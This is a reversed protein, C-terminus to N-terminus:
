DKLDLVDVNSPRHGGPLVMGDLLSQVSTISDATASQMWVGISPSYALIRNGVAFFLINHTRKGHPLFPLPRPLTVEVKLAVSWRPDLLNKAVSLHRTEPPFTTFLDRFSFRRREIDEPPGYSSNVASGLSEGSYQYIFRVLEEPPLNAADGVGGIRGYMPDWDDYDFGGGDEDDSQWAGMPSQPWEETIEQILVGVIEAIKVSDFKQDVALPLKFRALARTPADPLYGWLGDAYTYVVMWAYRFRERADFYPVQLIGAWKEFGPVDLGRYGDIFSLALILGGNPLEPRDEYAFSPSSLRFNPVLAGTEFAEVSFPDLDIVSNSEPTANIALCLTLLGCSNLKIFFPLIQKPM